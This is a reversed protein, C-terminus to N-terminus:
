VCCCLILHSIAANRPMEVATTSPAKSATNTFVINTPDLSSDVSFNSFGGEREGVFIGDKSGVAKGVPQGDIFGVSDDDGELM